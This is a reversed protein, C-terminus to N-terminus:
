HELRNILEGSVADYYYYRGKGESIFVYRGVKVPQEDLMLVVWVGFAHNGADMKSIDELVADNYNSLYIDGKITSSFARPAIYFVEVYKANDMAMTRSLIESKTQYNNEVFFSVALILLFILLFIGLSKKFNNVRIRPQGVFAFVIYYVMVFGALLGTTLRSANTGEWLGILQATGDIGLPVISLLAFVKSKLFHPLKSNLPSLLLAFVSGLLLGLNRSCLGMYQGFLSFSREPLQHCLLINLIYIAAGFGLLLKNDSQIFLPSLFLLLTYLLLLLLVLWYIIEILNSEKKAM